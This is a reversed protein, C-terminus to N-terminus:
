LIIAVTRLLCFSTLLLVGRRHVFERYDKEQIELPPEIEDGSVLGWLGKGKLLLQMKKSWISYNSANLSQIRHRAIDFRSESM